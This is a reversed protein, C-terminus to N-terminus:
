LVVSQTNNVAFKLDNLTLNEKPQNMPKEQALSTLTLITRLIIPKISTIKEAELNICIGLSTVPINRPINGWGSGCDIFIHTIPQDILKAIPRM